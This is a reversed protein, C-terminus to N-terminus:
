SAISNGHQTAGIFGDQRQREHVGSLFDRQKGLMAYRAKGATMAGM